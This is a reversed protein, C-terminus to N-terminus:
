SHDHNKGFQGVHLTRHDQDHCCTLHFGHSPLVDVCPGCVLVCLQLVQGVRQSNARRFLQGLTSVSQLSRRLSTSGAQHHGTLSYHSHGHVEGALVDPVVAALALNVGHRSVADVALNGLTTPLHLPDVGVSVVVVM